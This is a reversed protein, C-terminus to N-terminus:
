ISRFIKPYYKETSQVYDFTSGIFISSLPFKYIDILRKLLGINIESSDTEFNEIAKKTAGCKESVYLLSYDHYNRADRLTIM